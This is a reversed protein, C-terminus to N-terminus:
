EHNQGETNFTIQYNEFNTQLTSIFEAMRSAAVTIQAICEGRVSSVKKLQEEIQEPSGVLLPPPIEFFSLIFEHETHQVVLNTAYGKPTNEGINLEVPLEIKQPKNRKM